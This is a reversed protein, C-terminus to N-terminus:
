CSSSSPEWRISMAHSIARSIWKPIARRFPGFRMPSRSIPLAHCADCCRLKMPLKSRAFGRSSRSTPSSPPAPCPQGSSKSNARLCIISNSASVPAPWGWKPSYSPAYRWPTIASSQGSGPQPAPSAAGSPRPRWTWVWSPPRDTPLSSVWPTVIGCSPSRHCWLAQSTPLTKLRARCWPTSGM